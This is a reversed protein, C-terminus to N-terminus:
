GVDVVVLVVVVVVVVVHVQVDYRRVVSLDRGVRVVGVGDRDHQRRRQGDEGSTALELGLEPELPEDLVLLLSPPLSFRLLKKDFAVAQQITAPLQNTENKSTVLM